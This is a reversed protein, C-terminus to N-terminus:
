NGRTFQDRSGLRHFTKLLLPLLILRKTYNLHAVKPLVFLRDWNVLCTKKQAFHRFCFLHLPQNLSLDGPETGDM